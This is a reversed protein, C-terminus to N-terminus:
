VKRLLNYPIVVFGHSCYCFVETSNDFFKWKLDEKVHKPVWRFEIPCVFTGAMLTQSNFIDKLYTYDKTLVYNSTPIRNSM